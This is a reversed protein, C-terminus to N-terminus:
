NVNWQVYEGKAHMIKGDYQFKFDIYDTRASEVGSCCYIRNIEFHLRFTGTNSEQDLKKLEIKQISISPNGERSELNSVVIDNIDFLTAPSLHSKLSNPDKQFEEFSISNLAITLTIDHAM